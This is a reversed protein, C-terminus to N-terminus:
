SIEELLPIIRREHLKIQPVLPDASEERREHNSHCVKLQNSQAPIRNRGESFAHHRLPQGHAIRSESVLRATAAFFSRWFSFRVFHWFSFRVFHRLAAGDADAADHLADAEAGEDVTEGGLFVEGAEDAVVCVADGDFDFAGGGREVVEEGAEARFSRGEGADVGDGDAIECRGAFGAEADDGAFDEAADRGSDGGVGGGAGVAEALQERGGIAAVAIGEEVAGVAARTVGDGAADGVVARLGGHRAEFHAGGALGLVVVGGVAAKVGLGVGAPVAARLEGEDGGIAQRNGGGVGDGFGDGAEGGALDEGDFADAAEMEGDVGGVFGGDM